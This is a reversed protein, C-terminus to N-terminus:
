LMTPRAKKGEASCRFVQWQGATKVVELQVRGFVDLKM